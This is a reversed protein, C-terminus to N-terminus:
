IKEHFTGIEESLYDIGVLKNATRNLSCSINWLLNNAKWYKNHILRRLLSSAINRHNRFLIGRKIFGPQYFGDSPFVRYNWSKFYTIGRVKLVNPKKMRLYDLINPITEQDYIEDGDIVWFYDAGDGRSRM